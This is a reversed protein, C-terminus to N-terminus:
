HKTKNRPTANDSYVCMCVQIERQTEKLREDEQEELTRRQKRIEKM